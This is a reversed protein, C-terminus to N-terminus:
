HLGNVFASIRWRVKENGLEREEDENAAPESAFSRTMPQLPTRVAAIAAVPALSTASQWAAGASVSQAGFASASCRTAYRCLRSASRQLMSM